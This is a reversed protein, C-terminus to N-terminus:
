ILKWKIEKIIADIAAQKSVFGFGDEFGHYTILPMWKRNIKIQPYCKGDIDKIRIEPFNSLSM